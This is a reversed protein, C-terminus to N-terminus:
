VRAVRHFLAFANSCSFVHGRNGLLYIQGPVVFWAYADSEAASPEATPEDFDPLFAHEEHLLPVSPYLQYFLPLVHLVDDGSAIDEFQKQARRQYAPNNYYMVQTVSNFMGTFEHRYEMCAGVPTDYYMSLSFFMDLSASLLHKHLEVRPSPAEPPLKVCAERLQAHRFLVLFLGTLRRICSANLRLKGPGPGPGAPAPVPETCDHDNLVRADWAQDALEGFRAFYGRLLEFLVCPDAPRLEPWLLQLNRLNDRLERLAMSDVPTESICLRPEEPILEHAQLSGACPECRAFARAMALGLLHARNLPAATETPDTRWVWESWHSLVGSRLTEASARPGDKELLADLAVIDCGPM